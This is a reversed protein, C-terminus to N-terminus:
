LIVFMVVPEGFVVNVVSMSLALTDMLEYEKDTGSIKYLLYPASYDEHIWLVPAIIYLHM